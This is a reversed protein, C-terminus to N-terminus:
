TIIFPEICETYTEFTISNMHETSHTYITSSNMNFKYSRIHQYLSIAHIRDRECANCINITSINSIVVTVTIRLKHNYHTHTHTQQTTTPVTYYRKFTLTTHHNAM